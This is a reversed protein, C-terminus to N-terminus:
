PKFSTEREWWLVTQRDTHRSDRVTLQCAFTKDEFFSMIIQKHPVKTQLYSLFYLKNNGLQNYTTYQVQKKKEKSHNVRIIVKLKSNVSRLSALILWVSKKIYKKGLRQGGMIFQFSLLVKINTLLTMDLFLVLYLRFLTVCYIPAHNCPTCLTHALFAAAECPVLWSLVLCRQWYVVQISM